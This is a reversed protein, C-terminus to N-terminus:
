YGKGWWFNFKGNGYCRNDFCKPWFIKRITLASFGVKMCFKTPIARCVNSIAVHRDSSYRVLLATPVYIRIAHWKTFICSLTSTFGGELIKLLGNDM